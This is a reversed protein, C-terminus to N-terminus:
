KKDLSIIMNNKSGSVNDNNQLLNIDKRYFSSLAYMHTITSGRKSYLIDNYENEIFNIIDMNNILGERDPGPYEM